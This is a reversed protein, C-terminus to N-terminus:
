VNDPDGSWGRQQPLGGLEGLSVVRDHAESIHKPLLSRPMPDIKCDPCYVKPNNPGTPTEDDGYGDHYMPDPQDDVIQMARAQEVKTALLCGPQYTHAEGCAPTCRQVVAHNQAAYMDEAMRDVADQIDQPPVGEAANQAQDRCLKHYRESDDHECLFGGREPDWVLMCDTMPQHPLITQVLPQTIPAVSAGKLFQETFIEVCDVCLDYTQSTKFLGWGTVTLAKWGDMKNLTAVLNAAANKQSKEPAMIEHEAGCRNCRALRSM